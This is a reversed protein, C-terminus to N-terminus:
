VVLRESRDTRLRSFTFTVSISCASWVCVCVRRMADIDALSGLALYLYLHVPAYAIRMIGHAINKASLERTARTIAYVALPSVIKDRARANSEEQCM